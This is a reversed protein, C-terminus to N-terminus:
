AVAATFRNRVESLLGLPLKVSGPMRVWTSDHRCWTTMSVWRTVGYEELSFRVEEGEALAIPALTRVTRYETM